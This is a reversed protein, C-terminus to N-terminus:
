SKRESESKRKSQRWLPLIILLALAAIFPWAPLGASETIVVRPRLAIFPVATEGLRRYDDESGDIDHGILKVLNQAATPHRQAYQVMAEGSAAPDLIDAKVALQRRGVQITVEPQAQLNKFWQSRRGYGSAIFYTDSAKDYDVVEVVAQRPLGSKRGVHNLLLFRGGLLWGLRAHYFYIPARYVLKLLGEPPQPQNNKSMNKEGPSPLPQLNSTTPRQRGRGSAYEGRVFEQLFDAANAPGDWAQLHTQVEAARRRVQPDHLLHQVATKLKEATVAYKPLRVATGQRVYFDINAEQEPQLGIGVFPTGSAAATQVTGEGGHIVAVDALPNVKHAPLWDFVHVNAPIPAQTGALHKKIPAIVTVPLKGLAAMTTLLVEQNASSGMAFYVIPKDDPLAAIESPVAGPLRAFIPGIYGWNPPLTHLGTIEPTNTVLMQDGEFLDVLRRFPPVGFQAAVRNFPRTWISLRLGLWNFARDKWAQPLWRLPPPDYQAPWSGMGAAFFPRTFPLPAAVVLPVHAARASIYMSLTFGMVVAAPQLQAILALESEVRATLEAETFMKGGREGRDAKWLEDIRPPTLQPQLPHYPFGADSILDAFRDSYGMFHCSFDAGCARAIEIMRTTEALNWTVPAFLLNTM